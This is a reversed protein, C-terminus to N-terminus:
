LCKLDACLSPILKKNAFYYNVLRKNLIYNMVIGIRTIMPMLADPKERIVNEVAKSVANVKVNYPVSKLRHEKMAREIFKFM